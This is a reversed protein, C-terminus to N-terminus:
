FPEQKCKRALNTSDQYIEHQFRSRFDSLKCIHLEQPLLLAVLRWVHFRNGIWKPFKDVQRTRLVPLTVDWYTAGAEEIHRRDHHRLLCVQLHSDRIIDGGRVDDLFGLGFETREFSGRKETTPSQGRIYKCPIALRRNGSARKFIWRRELKSRIKHAESTIKWPLSYLDSLM